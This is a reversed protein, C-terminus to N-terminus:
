TVNGYKLVIAILDEDSLNAAIQFSKNNYHPIGNIRWEQEGNNWVVAPGDERHLVGKNYWYSNGSPYIAAPGDERHYQGKEDRWFETGNNNKYYPIM